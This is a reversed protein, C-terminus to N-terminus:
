FIQPWCWQEPAAEVHRALVRAFTETMTREADGHSVNHPFDIPEGVNIDYQGHRRRVAIVPLLSAHTRLAMSAPVRSMRFPRNLFDVTTFGPGWILDAAMIVINGRKLLHGAKMAGRMSSELTQFGTKRAVIAERYRRFQAVVWGMRSTPRYWLFGPDSSIGKLAFMLIEFNGYHGTILVAGGKGLAAQLREMHKIKIAPWHHSEEAAFLVLDFAIQVTHQFSQIVIRRQISASAHPYFARVNRLARRREEGYLLYAVRGLADAVCQITASPFRTFAQALWLIVKVNKPGNAPVSLPVAAATNEIDLNDGM